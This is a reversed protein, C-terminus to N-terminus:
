DQDQILPPPPPIELDCAALDETIPPPPPPPPAEINEPSPPANETFDDPPPPFLPEELVTELPPPPPDLPPTLASPLAMPPPALPESGSLDLSEEPKHITPPPPPPPPPTIPEPQNENSVEPPPPPPPAEETFENLPLPEDSLPPAQWSSPVTPPAVPRGFSGVSPSTPEQLKVRYSGTKRVTGSREAKVGKHGHGVSDLLTFSIPRRSYPLLPKPQPPPLLKHCRPVRRQATFSGIVRRAVKEKHMQVSQDLLDVSSELNKLGDRQLDLIRLLSEAVSHIQFAVSALSQTLLAQTESLAESSGKSTQLYNNSCYDAVNLLNQHNETLARLSQPVSQLIQDLEMAKTRTCDPNLGATSVNIKPQPPLFILSLSSSSSASPPPLHPQPLLFILSLPSSSSASPPPLHPQPLLFILSLPSSSSASPPPLTVGTHLWLPGQLLLTLTSSSIELMVDTATFWM